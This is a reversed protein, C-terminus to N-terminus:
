DALYYDVTAVVRVKKIHPTSSDRDSISFQGQNAQKIKGVRSNSDAAFKEAVERANRTAEEIMQPKVSNLGTFLFEAKSDYDQGAIAIGNKSLELLKQMAGHAMDVNTSYVTVISTATFRPQNPNGDNYGAQRDVFAPVSVSIEDDTFGHLKLFAIVQENKKEVSAVLATLENGVDNFKIPWIVTDAAIDRESLGKVQVTRELAKISMLQQGLTYAGAITGLSFFVGLIWANRSNTNM